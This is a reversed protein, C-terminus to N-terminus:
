YDSDRGSARILDRLLTNFGDAQKLTEISQHMRFQWKHRVNDPENIQERHTEKWRIHGDMALLDQIPFTTWM